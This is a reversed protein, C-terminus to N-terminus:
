VTAKGSASRKGAVQWETFPSRAGRIVANILYPKGSRLAREVAAGIEAVTTVTEGGGGFGQMVWDYRSQALNCAVIPGTEEQLEKELGWGGDNGVVIIVPLGHRVLSDLEALYFGLSGDGTIMLIPMRPNLLQHAVANPLASGIAGLPGLRVWGGSHEAPLMARGWHVFDGGDWCFQTEPPLHRALERYFSAPHMLSDAAHQQATNMLSGRWSERLAHLRDFWPQRAARQGDAQALMSRLVQRVTGHLPFGIPRNRGLEEQHIEVQAFRAEPSFLRPGGFALRYDLRKGLLLVADAELLATLAARNLAPDGYGFCLPHSDPVVGRAFTLTFLPLQEREVFAATEAGAADWWVGSGAIVVPRESRRLMELAPVPDPQALEPPSSLIEPELSPSSAAFIDVPINLHVPGRRGSNADQFARRLLPPIEGPSAAEAVWKVIPRAMAVHDIEQFAGKGALRSPRAGSVVVLPSLSLWAASIGTVANTFGPGGTVLAVAPRRTLRGYAEAAHTVGSEHRMDILAIGRGAAEQLADNLHDGVLTFIRDVGLEILTDAFLQAGTPM